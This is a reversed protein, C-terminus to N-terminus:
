APKIEYVPGEPNYEYETTVPRWGEKLGSSAPIFMFCYIKQPFYKDYSTVKIVKNGPYHFLLAEEIILIIASGVKGSEDSINIKMGTALYNTPLSKRKTRVIPTSSFYQIHEILKVELKENFTDISDYCFSLTEILDEQLFFKAYMGDGTEIVLQGDDQCQVSYFSVQNNTRAIRLWFTDDNEMVLVLMLSFCFLKSEGSDFSPRIDLRIVQSDCFSHEHGHSAIAKFNVEKSFIAPVDRMKDYFPRLRKFLRDSLETAKNIANNTREIENCYDVIAEM